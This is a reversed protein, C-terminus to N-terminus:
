WEAVLAKRFHEPFAKLLSTGDSKEREFVPAFNRVKKSM